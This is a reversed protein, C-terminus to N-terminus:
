PPLPLHWKRVEKDVAPEWIIYERGDKEATSFPIGNETLWAKFRAQTAGDYAIHRGSPLDPGFVEQRIATAREADSKTWRVFEQGDLTETTFPVGAATLKQKFQEQRVPDHFSYAESDLVPAQREVCATALVLMVAAFATKLARIM